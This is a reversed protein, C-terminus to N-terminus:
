AFFPFCEPCSCPSEKDGHSQSGQLVPGQVTSSSFDWSSGLTRAINGTAALANSNTTAAEYIQVM